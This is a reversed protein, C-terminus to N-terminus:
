HRLRRPLSPWWSALSHRGDQLSESMVDVDSLIVAHPECGESEFSSGWRILMSNNNSIALRSTLRADAGESCHRAWGQAEAEGRFSCGHGTTKQHLAGALM